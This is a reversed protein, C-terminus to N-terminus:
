SKEDPKGSPLRKRLKKIAVPVLVFIGLLGLRLSVQTSLVQGTAEFNGLSEGMSAVLFSGPLIGLVTAAVFVRCKLPTLATALNVLWFPFLPVLRLSLLYYFGSEAIGAIIRQTRPGARERVFDYFVYRAASFAITAGLTACVVITVTAVRTGFAYGTALSLLTAVPLSFAVVAVYAVAMALLMPWYHREVYGLLYVRNAKLASFTLYRQGGLAFFAVVGGAFILMIGLKRWNWRAKGTENM